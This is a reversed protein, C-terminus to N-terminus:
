PSFSRLAGFDELANWEAPEPRRLVDRADTQEGGGVTRTRVPRAEPPPPRVQECSFAAEPQTLVLSAPLFSIM